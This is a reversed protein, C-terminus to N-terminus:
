WRRPPSTCQPVLARRLTGVSTLHHSLPRHSSVGHQNRRQQGQRQRNVQQGCRAAHGDGGRREGAGLARLQGARRLTVFPAQVVFLIVLLIAGTEFSFPANGETLADVMFRIAQPYLLNTGSGILLALTAVALRPLEPRALALLRRLQVKPKAM